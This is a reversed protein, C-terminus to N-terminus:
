EQHFGRQFVEDIRLNKICDKHCAAVIDAIFGDYTRDPLPFEVPCYDPEYQFLRERQDQRPCGDDYVLAYVLHYDAVHQILSFHTIERCGSLKYVQYDEKRGYQHLRDGGHQYSCFFVM